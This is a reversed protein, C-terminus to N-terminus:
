AAIAGRERLARVFGDFDGAVRAPEAGYTQAVETAAASTEGHSLLANWLASAVGNLVLPTSWSPRSLVLAGEFEGFVLDDALRLQRHPAPQVVVRAMQRRGLARHKLCREPPLLPLARESVGREENWVAIDPENWPFCVHPPQGVWYGLTAQRKSWRERWREYEAGYLAQAADRLDLGSVCARVRPDREVAARLEPTAVLPAFVVSAHEPLAALHQRFRVGSLACDDIVIRPRRDDQRVELHTPDLDLVYALLGLVVLGGRPVAEFRHRHLAARGFREVLNVALAEVAREVAPQDLVLLRPLVRELQWTLTALRARTSADFRGIVGLLPEPRERVVITVPAVHHWAPSHAIARALALPGGIASALVRAGPGHTPLSLIAFTLSDELETM